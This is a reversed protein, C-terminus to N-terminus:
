HKAGGGGTLLALLADLLRLVAPSSGSDFTARLMLAASVSVHDESPDRAAEPPLRGYHHGGRRNSEWDCAGEIWALLGPAIQPWGNCARKLAHLESDTLGVLADEIPTLITAM